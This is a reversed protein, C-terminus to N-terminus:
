GDTYTYHGKLKYVMQSYKNKIAHLIDLPSNAQESQISIGLQTEVVDHDRDPNDQGGDGNVDEHGHDVVFISSLVSDSRSQCSIHKM